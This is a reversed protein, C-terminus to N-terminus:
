DSCACNTDCNQKQEIRAQGHRDDDTGIDGMRYREGQHGADTMPPETRHVPGQEPSQQGTGNWAYDDAAIQSYPDRFQNESRYEGDRQYYNAAPQHESLPNGLRVHRHHNHVAM